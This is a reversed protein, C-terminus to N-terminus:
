LVSGDRASRSYRKTLLTFATGPTAFGDTGMRGCRGVRHVHADVSRAADFNVVARVGKVDLGRAAVDTAVLVNCAGGGGGGGDGGGSGSSFTSSSFSSATSSASSSSSSPMKFSRLAEARSGQDMDGHLVAVGVGAAAMQRRLDAGLGEAAAKQGVFVVVQPTLM